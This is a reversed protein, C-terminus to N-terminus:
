PTQSSPLLATRHLIPNSEVYNSRHPCGKATPSVSPYSAIATSATSRNQLEWVKIIYTTATFCSHAHGCLLHQTQVNVGRLHHCIVTSRPRISRCSGAGSTQSDSPRHALSTFPIEHATPAAPVTPCPIHSVYTYQHCTPM